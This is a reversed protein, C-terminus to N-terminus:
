QHKSFKVPYTKQHKLNMLNESDSDALVELWTTNTDTAQEM